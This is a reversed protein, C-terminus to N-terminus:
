QKVCAHPWHLLDALFKGATKTGCHQAAVVLVRLAIQKSPPTDKSSTQRTKTQGVASLCHMCNQLFRQM